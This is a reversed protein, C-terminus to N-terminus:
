DSVANTDYYHYITSEDDDVGLLDQLENFYDEDYIEDLYIDYDPDLM